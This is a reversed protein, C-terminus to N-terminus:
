DDEPTTPRAAVRDLTHPNTPDLSQGPQLHDALQDYRKVVDSVWAAADYHLTMQGRVNKARELGDATRRDMRRWEEQLTTAERLLLPLSLRAVYDPVIQRVYQGAESPRRRELEEMALRVFGVFGVGHDRMLRDLRSDEQETMYAVRQRHRDFYPRRRRPEVHLPPLGQPNDSVPEHFRADHTAALSLANTSVHEHSRAAEAM